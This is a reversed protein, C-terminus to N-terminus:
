PNPPWWRGFQGTIAGYVACLAVLLFVAIMLREPPSIGLLKFVWDCVLYLVVVSVIAILVRWGTAFM